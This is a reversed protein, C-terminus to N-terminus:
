RASTLPATVISRERHSSDWKADQWAEAIERFTAPKSKRKTYEDIKRYVEAQTDGYFTMKQGDITRQAMYRGDKRKKM